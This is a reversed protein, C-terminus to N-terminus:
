VGINESGLVQSVYPTTILPVIIVLIQYAINYIFNIRLNKM